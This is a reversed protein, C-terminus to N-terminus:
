PPLMRVERQPFPIAIGAAQFARWIALHIDSKIQLSGEEPDAIWFGLELAIGSDAFATVFAKPPPDALVRSQERAAAVLIAMARELDADYAVQVQTALRVKPDTLTENSIVSGVLMENPVIVEAGTSSRLLTYRTKIRSVVGRQGAVEVLNGIGISRDLLIIFGSVYNAAIRQLGLGLGVGLAGGFVSLTTLDIGVLPLGILVALLILLARMLRALVLRLNADIGEASMLKAEIAAGIWLAVLLTTLVAAVGQLILWLDLKEKGFHFHVSEMLDILDPLLGLIHLAVVGWVCFALIREFSLLWPASAFFSHRVVFMVARILVLSTLLPIALSLLNVHHWHALVPRAALVLLLMVVPLGLRKLGRRGFDLARNDPVAAGSFHSRFWRDVVWALLFCVALVGVQWLVETQQLDQWLELLFKGAEGGANM